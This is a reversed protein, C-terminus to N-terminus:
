KSGAGLRQQRHSAVVSVEPRLDAEEAHQVGPILFQLVMRMDMAHNWGAAQRGVVGPPNRCPGPKEQWYEDEAPDKL